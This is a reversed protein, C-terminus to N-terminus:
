EEEIVEKRFLAADEPHALRPSAILAPPFSTGPVLVYVKTKEPLHVSQFLRIQGDEVVAEFSTISM